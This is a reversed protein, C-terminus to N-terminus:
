CFVEIKTRNSILFENQVHFLEALLYDDAELKTNTMVVINGNKDIILYWQANENETLHSPTLPKSQNFEWFNFFVGKFGSYGITGGINKQSQIAAVVRDKDPCQLEGELLNGNEDIVKIYVKSRACLFTSWEDGSFLFSRKAVFTNFFFSDMKVFKIYPLVDFLVKKIADNTNIGPDLTQHEAWKCVAEFLEEQKTTEQNYQVVDKLVSKPLSLFEEFKLFSSLYTSIVSDLKEKLDFMPYKSILELFPYVNDLDLITMLFEECAKKLVDVDYYEAIDVM